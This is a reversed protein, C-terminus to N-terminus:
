LVKYFCFKIVHTVGTEQASKRYKHGTWMKIIVSCLVAYILTIIEESSVMTIGM